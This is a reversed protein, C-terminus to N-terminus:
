LSLFPVYGKSKGYSSIQYGTMSEMIIFIVNKNKPNGEPIVERAIPSNKNGKTKFFNQSSAQALESNLLDLNDKPSSHILNFFGNLTINNLLPYKSFLSDSINKPRENFNLSGRAGLFLFFGVIIFQLILSLPKTSFYRQGLHEVIIKKLYKNIFFILILGLIILILYSPNSFVETVMLDPTEIWSFVGVTLRTGYYNYYGIDTFGGAITLVSAINLYYRLGTQFSKPYKKLLYLFTLLVSPLFFSINIFVTDFLMGRILTEPLLSFSKPNIDSWSVVILYVRCITLFSMLILYIKLLLLFPKNRM